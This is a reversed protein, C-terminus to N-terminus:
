AVTDDGMVITTDSLFRHQPDDALLSDSATTDINIFEQTVGAHTFRRLKLTRVAATQLQAQM